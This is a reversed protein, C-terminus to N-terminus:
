MAAVVAGLITQKTTADTAELTKALNVLKESKTMLRVNQFALLGSGSHLQWNGAEDEYGTVGPIRAEAEIVVERGLQLLEFNRDFQSDAVIVSTNDVKIVRFKKGNQSVALNGLSTIEGTIPKVKPLVKGGVITTTGAIQASENITAMTKTKKANSFLHYVIIFGVLRPPLARCDFPLM